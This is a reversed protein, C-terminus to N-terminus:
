NQDDAIMRGGSKRAEGRKPTLMVVMYPALSPLLTWQVTSPTFSTEGNGM